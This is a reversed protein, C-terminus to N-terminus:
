NWKWKIFLKCLEVRFKNWQSSVNWLLYGCSYIPECNIIQPKNKMAHASHRLFTKNIFLVVRFVKIVNCIIVHM